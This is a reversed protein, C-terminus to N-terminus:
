LLRLNAYVCLLWYGCVTAAFVLFSARNSLMMPKHEANLGM